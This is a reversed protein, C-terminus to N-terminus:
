NKISKQEYNDANHEYNNDVNHEYNNDVNDANHEYNYDDNDDNGDDHSNDHGYDYNYKNNHKSDEDNQMSVWHSDCYFDEDYKPEDSLNISSWMFKNIYDSKPRLNHQDLEDYVYRNNISVQGKDYDFTIYYQNGEIIKYQKPNKVSCCITNFQISKTIFTRKILTNKHATAIIHAANHMCIFLITEKDADGEFNVYLCIFM